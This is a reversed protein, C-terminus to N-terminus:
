NESYLLCKLSVYVVKNQYIEYCFSIQWSSPFHLSLITRSRSFALLLLPSDSHSSPWTSVASCWFVSFRKGAETRLSLSYYLSLSKDCRFAPGQFRSMSFVFPVSLMKYGTGAQGRYHICRITLSLGRPSNWWDENTLTSSLPPVPSQRQILYIRILQSYRYM